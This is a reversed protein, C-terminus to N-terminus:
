DLLLKDLAHVPRSSESLQKREVASRFCSNAATALMDNLDCVKRGRQREPVSRTWGRM